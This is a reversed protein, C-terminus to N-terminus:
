PAKRPTSPDSASTMVPNGERVVEYLSDFAAAGRFPRTSESSNLRRNVIASHLLGAEFLQRLDIRDRLNGSCFAVVKPQIKGLKLRQEETLLPPGLLSVIVHGPPAKRLIEFFDGPPVEAPRLPATQILHTNAVTVGAKGM